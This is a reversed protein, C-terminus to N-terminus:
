QIRAAGKGSGGQSAMQILPWAIELLLQGALSLELWGTRLLPARWLGIDIVCGPSGTWAWVRRITSRDTATSSCSIRCISALLLRSRGTKQRCRPCFRRTPAPRFYGGRPDARDRPRAQRCQRHTRSELAWAGSEASSSGQRPSRVEQRDMRRNRRAPRWGVKGQRLEAGHGARAKGQSGAHHLQGASDFGACRHTPM